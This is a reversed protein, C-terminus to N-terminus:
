LVTLIASLDFPYNPKPPFQVTSFCQLAWAFGPVHRSVQFIFRRRSGNTLVQQWSKCMHGRRSHALEDGFAKLANAWKQVLLLYQRKQLSEPTGKFWMKWEARPSHFILCSITLGASVKSNWYEWRKRRCASLTYDWKHQATVSLLTYLVCLTLFMMGRERTLRINERKGQNNVCPVSGQTCEDIHVVDRDWGDGGRQPSIQRPRIELAPLPQKSAGALSEGM